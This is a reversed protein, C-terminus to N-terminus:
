CVPHWAALRRRYHVREPSHPILQIFQHHHNTPAHNGRPARRPDARAGASGRFLWIPRDRVRRPSARVRTM